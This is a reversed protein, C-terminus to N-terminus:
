EDMAKEETGGGTETAKAQEDAEQRRVTITVPRCLSIIFFKCYNSQSSQISGDQNRAFGASRSSSHNTKVRTGSQICEVSAM